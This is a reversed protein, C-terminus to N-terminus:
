TQAPLGDAARSVGMGPLSVAAEGKAEDVVIKWKKYVSLGTGAPILRGM